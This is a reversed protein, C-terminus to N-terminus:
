VRSQGGSKGHQEELRNIVALKEADSMERWDIIEDQTRGCGGCEMFAFKNVLHCDGVCPSKILKSRM